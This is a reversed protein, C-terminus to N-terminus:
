GTVLELTSGSPSKRVEIRTGIREALERVHTVIGVLRGEMRLGELASMVPDLTDTDLAGFGEDLFLSDLVTAAAAQIRPLQEALALALALSVVFTEGGSLTSPPREEDAHWRDIVIFDVGDAKLAYRRDPDLVDLRRSAEEALLTTAQGVYWQRFNNAHLLDAIERYLGAEARIRELRERHQEAQKIQDKLTRLQQELKGLRNTLESCTDQAETHMQQLLTGPYKHAEILEGVDAWKWTRVISTVEALEAEARARDEAAAGELATIRAALKLRENKAEAIAHAQADAASRRQELETTAAARRSEADALEAVRTTLAEVSAPEGAPLQEALAKRADALRQAATAAAEAAQQARQEALALAQRAAAEAAHARELDRRAAAEAREAAKLQSAEGKPLVGVTGGCVPCPDGKKLGSRVHAAVDARQAERLAADAADHAAIAAADRAAADAAAARAAEVPASDAALTAAQEADRECQAVQRALGLAGALALHRPQDHAVSALTCEAEAVALRLQALQAEGTEALTEAEALQARLTDIQKNRALEGERIQKWAAAHQSAKLLADRRKKETELQPKATAIERKCAALAEETADAFTEALLKDLLKAENALENARANAKARIRDYVTCDLLDELVKRREDKSGALMEQFRGQPLLVCRTFAMYDLGVIREIAENAERVRNELPEWGEDVQRDLAVQTAVQSAGANANRVVRYRGEGASFELAVHMHKAGRALLSGVTTGRPVKGYLAYCLADMITTKGSGTRGTIAFVDLDGFDVEVPETFCTFGALELRLPRV